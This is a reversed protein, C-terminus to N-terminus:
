GAPVPLMVIRQLMRGFLRRASVSARISTKSQPNWPPVTGTYKSKESLGTAAQLIMADILEAFERLRKQRVRQLQRQVFKM